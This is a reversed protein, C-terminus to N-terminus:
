AFANVDAVALFEYHFLTQVFLPMGSLVTASAQYCEHLHRIVFNSIGTIGGYCADRVTTSLM